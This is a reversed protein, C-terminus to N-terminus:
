TRSGYTCPLGWIQSLRFMLGPRPASQGVWDPDPLAKAYVLFDLRPGIAWGARTRSRKPPFLSIWDHSSHGRVARDPFQLPTFLSILDHIRIAGGLTIHTGIARGTQPLPLNTFSTINGWNGM